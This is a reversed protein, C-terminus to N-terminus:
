PVLTAVVVRLRMLVDNGVIRLNFRCGARLEDRADLEKDGIV